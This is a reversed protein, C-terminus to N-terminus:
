KINLLDLLPDIGKSPNYLIHPSASIPISSNPDMYRGTFNIIINKSEIKNVSNMAGAFAIFGSKELEFLKSGININPYIGVKVLNELIV